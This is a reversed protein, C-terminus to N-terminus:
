AHRDSRRGDLAPNRDRPAAAARAQAAADPGPAAAAAVAPRDPKPLRRRGITGAALLLTMAIWATAENRTLPPPPGHRAAVPGGQAVLLAPLSVRPVAALTAQLWQESFRAVEVAEHVVRGDQGRRYRDLTVQEGPAPVAFPRGFQLTEQYAAHAVYHSIVPLGRPAVPGAAPLRALTFGPGAPLGLPRPVPEGLAAALLVAVGTLCVVVSSGLGSLRRRVGAAAPPAGRLRRPRPAARLRASAAALWRVTLGACTLAATWLTGAILYVALRRLERVPLGQPWPVGGRAALDPGAAGLVVGALLVALLTTSFGWRGRWPRQAPAAVPGALWAGALYAPVAVLAAPLEGHIVLLAWPLALLLRWWRPAFPDRRVIQLVAAAAFLLLAAAAREWPLEAIRWRLGSDWLARGVRLAFDGPPLVSAVYALGAAGAETETTFWDAVRRLYPDYRPDLRDLRAALGAVAVREYGDFTTVREGATQATVVTGFGAAHLRRVLSQYPGGPGAARDEEIILTYYGRWVQLAEAFVVLSGLMSTGAILVGAALALTAIHRVRERGWAAAVTRRKNRWM